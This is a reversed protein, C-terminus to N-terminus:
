LERERLQREQVENASKWFNWFLGVASELWWVVEVDEKLGGASQGGSTLTRPWDM